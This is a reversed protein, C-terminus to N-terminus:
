LFPELNSYVSRYTFLSVLSILFGRYFGRIGERKSIRDLIDFTAEPANGKEKM